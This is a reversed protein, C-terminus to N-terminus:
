NPEIVPHNCSLFINNEADHFKTNRLSNLLHLQFLSVSMEDSM